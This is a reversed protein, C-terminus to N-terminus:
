NSRTSWFRASCMADHSVANKEKQISCMKPFETCFKTLFYISNRMASLLTKRNFSIDTIKVSFLPKQWSMVQKRIIKKKCQLVNPYKMYAVYYIYM